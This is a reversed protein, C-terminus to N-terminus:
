RALLAHDMDLGDERAQRFYDREHRTRDSAAMSEKAAKWKADMSLKMGEIATRKVEPNCDDALHARIVEAEDASPLRKVKGGNAIFEAVTRAKLHARAPSTKM